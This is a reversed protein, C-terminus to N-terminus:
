KKVQFFAEWDNPMDRYAEGLWGEYWWNYEKSGIAFPNDCDGKGIRYAAAGRVIARRRARDITLKSWM